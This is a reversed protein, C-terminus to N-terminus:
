KWTREYIAWDTMKRTFGTFKSNNEIGRSTCVKIETPSIEQGENSRLLEDLQNNLKDLRKMKIGIQTELQKLEMNLHDSKRELQLLKENLTENEQSMRFNNSKYREMGLLTDALQNQAQALTLEMGRRQEQSNNLLKLRYESAKDTILQEQALKLINEETQYKKNYQKDLKLQIRRIEADLATGERTAEKLDKETQELLIPIETLKNELGALIDSQTKGTFVIFHNFSDRFKPHQKKIGVLLKYALHAM